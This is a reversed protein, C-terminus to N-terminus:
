FVDIMARCKNCEGQCFLVSLSPHCCPQFSAGAHLSDGRCGGPGRVTSVDHPHLALAGETGAKTEWCCLAQRQQSFAGQNNQTWRAHRHGTGGPSGGVWMPSLSWVTGLALPPSSLTLLAERGEPGM